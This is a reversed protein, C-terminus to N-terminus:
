VCYSVTRHNWIHVMDILSTGQLYVFVYRTSYQSLHISSRGLLEESREICHIQIQDKPIGDHELTLACSLLRERVTAHRHHYGRTTFIVYDVFLNFFSLENFVRTITAKVARSGFFQLYLYSLKSSCYLSLAPNSRKKFYM